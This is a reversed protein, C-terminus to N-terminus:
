SPYSAASNEDEAALILRASLWRVVDDFGQVTGNAINLCYDRLEDNSANLTLGYSLLVDLTALLATRKNGDIFCSNKCLYFLLAGIFCLGVQGEGNGAYYEAMQAAGVSREVCGDDRVGTRGGWRTIAEDHLETIRTINTPLM